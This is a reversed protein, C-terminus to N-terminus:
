SPQKWVAPDAQLKRVLYACADSEREFEMVGSAVGREVFYVIWRTGDEAIHYKGDDNVAHGSGICVADFKLKGRLYDRLENVSMADKGGGM